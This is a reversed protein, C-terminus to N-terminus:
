AKIRRKAELATKADNFAKAPLEDLTEVGLYKLFKATDADVKKMLNVLTEKQKASIPESLEGGDLDKEVPAMGTAALLTYRQLYTTTSGIQQIMNKGGSADPGAQMSVRKEHGQVHTLVCTVRIKEAEQEIDWDHSIGHDALGKGVADCVQGITAHDYETVGKQTDFRVHRDKIIKPPDAKFAAMAEVFAKRAQTAEWREQLDMLKQLQDLDAGKNVAIQLMQMPTVAQVSAPEMEVIESSKPENMIEEKTNNAMMEGVM